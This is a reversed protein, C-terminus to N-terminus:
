LSLLHWRYNPVFFDRKAQTPLCAKRMINIIVLSVHLACINSRVGRATPVIMTAFCTRYSFVIRVYDSLM